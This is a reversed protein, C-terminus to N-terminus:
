ESCVEWTELTRVKKFDLDLNRYIFNALRKRTKPSTMDNSGIARVVDRPHLGLVRSCFKADQGLFFRKRNVKGFSKYDVVLTWDHGFGYANPTTEIHKKM